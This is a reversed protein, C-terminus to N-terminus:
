FVFPSGVLPLESEFSYQWTTEYEVAAGALSSQPAKRTIQRRDVHEATPWLPIGPSPYVGLAVARGSQTARYPTASAVLQRQPLGNITQLFVFRPGGGSFTLLEEWVLPVGTADGVPRDAEVVIRYSRFTAYQGGHGEPFSPGEVVRTGGITDSAQIAHSTPTVGDDLYLGVDQGQQAYATKLADIATTLAAPSTGQLFGSIEWRERNAYHVRQETFRAAISIAIAAEGVSHAYNGYKLIM